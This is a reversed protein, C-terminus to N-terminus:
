AVRQERIRVRRRGCGIRGDMLVVALHHGHDLLQQLRPYPRGHLLVAAVDLELCARAQPM